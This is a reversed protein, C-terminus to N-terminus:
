PVAILVALDFSAGISQHLTISIGESGFELVRTRNAKKKKNTRITPNGTPAYKVLWRM